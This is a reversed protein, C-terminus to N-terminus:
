GPPPCSAATWWGAATSCTTKMSSSNWAPSARLQQLFAATVVTDGTCQFVQGDGTFHSADVTARINLPGHDIVEETPQPAEESPRLSRYKSIDRNTQQINSELM